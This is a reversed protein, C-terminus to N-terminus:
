KIFLLGVGACALLAGVVSRASIHERYIAASFPIIMVPSLSAFTQALGAPIRELAFMALTVGLFPGFVAGVTLHAMARRDRLGAVVRPLYGALAAFVLFAALGAILRITTAAFPSGAAELGPKALVMGAAQGAAGLVALAGGKWTFRHSASGQPERSGLVVWGVGALTVAMGVLNLATLREGLAIWGILATLPPCVSMVLMALRPGLLVLARFLCLDGVFFGALGSLSLWVWAPRGASLPIAEGRFILGWAVFLGFAIAMRLVNVALSGIRSGALSFCLASITWSLATGIAAIEGAHTM